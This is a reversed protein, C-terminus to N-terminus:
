FFPDVANKRKYTLKLHVSYYDLLQMILILVSLMQTAKNFIGLDPLKVNKEVRDIINMIPLIYM